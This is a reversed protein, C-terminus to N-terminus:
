RVPEKGKGRGEGERERGEGGEEEGKRRGERWQDM